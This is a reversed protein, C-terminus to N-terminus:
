RNEKVVITRKKKHHQLIVFKLWGRMYGLGYSFHIMPFAILLKFFLLTRQHFYSQTALTISKYLAISYYLALPLFMLAFINKSIFLSIFAFLHLLVIAPPAFQRLTAPKGLKLMVLPKFLGYQEYMRRMLRFTPRAYYRIYLDPILFISGGNKIIRGNLEDDQNRLMDTDFKGIREFLSKPFCGYPVTDAETVIDAGLRYSANGIGFADSTALAIAHAEATDAGPETIWVGGVNDANFEKLAKVLTSVYHKPYGSHADIRVIIDGNSAEVCRNLATPVFKEPNDILRINNYKKCYTDIIERTRDTSRGDAILIELQEQPYDQTLLCEILTAIHKEENYTPVIISVM